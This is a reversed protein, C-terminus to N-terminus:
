KVLSQDNILVDVLVADGKCIKVKAYAKHIGERTLKRYNEEAKKAKFENLYFKDFPYKIELSPQPRDYVFLVKAKLFHPTDKPRKKTINKIHTVGQRDKDLILWIPEGPKWEFGSIKKWNNEKFRLDLYKGRLPDVPDVPALEFYYTEGKRLIMERHFIIQLVFGLQIVALLIFFATKYSNNIKM